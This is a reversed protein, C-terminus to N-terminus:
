VERKRTNVGVMGWGLFVSELLQALGLKWEKRSELAM